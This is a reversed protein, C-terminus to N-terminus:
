KEYLEKQLQYEIDSKSLEALQLLQRVAVTRLETNAVSVVEYMKNDAIRFVMDKANIQPMAITWAGIQNPEFKGFAAEMSQNPTPEYQIYTSTHKWYGKDFGSGYCNTCADRVVKKAKEDWCIPCRKGYTKKNFIASEVGVFKRLLLWERRQIDSLKLEIKKEIGRIWTTAKTHYISGDPRIIELKFYELNFKSSLPPIPDSYKNSHIAVDNVKLFPGVENASRYINFTCDGWFFPIFWEM